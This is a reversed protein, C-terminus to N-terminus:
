GVLFDGATVSANANTVQQVSAAIAAVNPEGEVAVYMVRANASNLIVPTAHLAVAQLVAEGPNPDSPETGSFGFLAINAAGDVEDIALFTLSGVLLQGEEASGSVRQIGIEAM